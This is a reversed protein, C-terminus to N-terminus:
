GTEMKKCQEETSLEDSAILRSWATQADELFDGSEQDSDREIRNDHRTEDYERKTRGEDTDRKKREGLAVSISCGTPAGDSSPSVSGKRKWARWPALARMVLLPKVAM